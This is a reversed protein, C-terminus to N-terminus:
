IHQKYTNQSNYGLTYFGYYKSITLLQNKYFKMDLFEHFLTFSNRFASKTTNVKTVSTENKPTSTNFWSYHSIYLANENGSERGDYIIFNNTIVASSRVISNTSPDFRHVFLYDDYEEDFKWVDVGKEGPLVFM